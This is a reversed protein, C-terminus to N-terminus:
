YGTIKQIIDVAMFVATVTFLKRTFAFTKEEAIRLAALETGKTSGEKNYEDVLPDM